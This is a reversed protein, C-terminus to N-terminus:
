VLGKQRLCEEYLEEIRRVMTKADFLPRVHESGARGMRAAGGPDHLVRLIGEALREADGCPVLIGTRGDLVVERTGGADTAVVPRGLALAEVVMLPLGETASASVCVDAARMLDPLDERFGLSLLAGSEMLQAASVEVQARLPGEGALVAVASPVREMVMEVAKLFTGHDKEPVFRAAYLVMPRGDKIGLSARLSAPEMHAADLRPLDLGSHITVFKGRAAIGRAVYEDAESDSKAIVCDTWRAAIREARAIVGQMRPSLYAEHFVTGHPTHIVVPVRALRAALRGLMGAKATHTHVVDFRERRMLNLLQRTARLDRIPSIPRVLDPIPHFEDALSIGREV